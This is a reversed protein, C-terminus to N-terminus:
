ALARPARRRRELFLPRPFVPLLLVDGSAILSRYRKRLDAACGDCLVRGHWGGNDRFVCSWTGPGSGSRRECTVSTM